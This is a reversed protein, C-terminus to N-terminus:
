NGTRRVSRGSGVRMATARRRDSGVKKSGIWMDVESLGTRGDQFLTLPDLIAISVGQRTIQTVRKPLRCRSSDSGGGFALALQCALSAAAMVGGRDPGTGFTYTVSFTDELDDDLDIRQCCPWGRRPDLNTEDPLYVLWRLDDVRYRDPDVVMGDIKVEDVSVVPFGPLQIESLRHCGCARPRQCGCWGVMDGANYTVRGWARNSRMGCPRVTDVNEGPWQRGTFEYLVESAFQLCDELLTEDFGYDNCPSGVDAVTAWPQVTLDLATM